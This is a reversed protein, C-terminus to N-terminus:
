EGSSRRVQAHLRELRALQENKRPGIQLREVFSIDAPLDDPTAERLVGEEFALESCVLEQGQARGLSERAEALGM